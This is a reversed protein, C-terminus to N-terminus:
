QLTITREESEGQADASVFRVTVTWDGATPFESRKIEPVTCITTSADPYAPTDKQVTNNGQRFTIICTGKQLIDPTFARVEITDGYQDADTIVVNVSKKNNGSVDDETKTQSNEIIKKKAENGAKKEEETPPNYDITNPPKVPDTDRGSTSKFVMYAGSISIALILIFVLLLKRNRM